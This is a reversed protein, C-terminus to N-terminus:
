RLRVDRAFSALAEATSVPQEEALWHGSDKIVVSRVDRAGVNRLAQALVPLNSGMGSDGGVLLLPLDLESRQAALFTADAAFARYFEFGAQLSGPSAYAAAYVGVAEDEIAKPHKAVRDIFYRFYVAQRGTVLKEALPQQAHFDYHWAHPSRAIADWPDLGPLPVDLVAVGRLRAPYLRAFAYAVIGGIDHGALMPRDINLQTLFAELDRALTEKRWDQTPASTGGVGRLNLAYVVHNRALIPMVHRWQEASQPWGHLLVIPTGQSGARLYRVEQGGVTVRHDSIATPPNQVASLSSSMSAAAATTLLFVGLGIVRLPLTSM